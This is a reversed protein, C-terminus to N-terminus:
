RMKSTESWGALQGLQKWGGNRPRLKQPDGDTESPHQCSVSARIQRESDKYIGIFHPAHSCSAGLFINFHAQGWEQCLRNLGGAAYSRFLVGLLGESANKSYSFAYLSGKSQLKTNRAYLDQTCPWNHAINGLLGGCQVCCLPDPDLPHGQVCYLWGSPM